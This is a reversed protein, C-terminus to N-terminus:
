KRRGTTTTLPTEPPAPTCRALGPAERLHPWPMQGRRNLHRRLEPSLQASRRSLVDPDLQEVSELLARTREARSAQADLLVVLRGKVTCLGGRRDSRRRFTEVRVEVGAARLLACLEDYVADQSM